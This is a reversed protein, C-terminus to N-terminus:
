IGSCKLRDAPFDAEAGTGPDGKRDGPHLLNWRRSGAQGDQYVAFCLRSCVQEVPKEGRTVAENAFAEVGVSEAHAEAPHRLHLYLLDVAGRQIQMDHTDRLHIGVFDGALM